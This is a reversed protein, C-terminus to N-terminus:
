PAPHGFVAIESVSYSGDGSSAEFRLMDTVVTPSLPWRVSADGQQPRTAMGGAEGLPVGWLQVWAATEPDRYSLRYGDNMDAQVVAADLVFAKGLDVEIWARSSPDSTTEEWWVTGDTWPQCEPLFLGDAVSRAAARPTISTPQDAVGAVSTFFPGGHLTVNAPVIWPSRDPATAAPTGRAALDRLPPPAPTSPLVLTWSRTTVEFARIDDPAEWGCGTNVMGGYVVLQENVPDFVMQPLQRCEPRTGCAGPEDNSASGDYLTEWRDATADYAVSRGQGLIVTREAADDYSIGPGMGWMGAGFDPPTVAGTGSWTGTRLDFLWTRAEVRRDWGESKWTEVYAVLRDVSADYAIFAHHPGVVLPTVERIPTWTDTEVEYSWLALGLTDPDGDDGLVVVLGSVPDYFRLGARRPDVLPAFRGKETWSNAELDYAWMRVGDSAITVDSDVDYVLQGFDGPPPERNPLMRTWTNSCVDFTWTEVPGEVTGALAVLRGARRDFAMTPSPDSPRAQDAPGPEDPTSGPPCTPAPGTPVSVRPPPTGVPPLSPTPSPTAGETGNRSASPSATAVAPPTATATPAGLAAEWGPQGGGTRGVLAIGVLTVLVILAVGLAVSGSPGRAPFPVPALEGPARSAGDLGAM